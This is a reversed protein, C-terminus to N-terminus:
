ATTAARQGCSEDVSDGAPAGRRLSVWRSDRIENIPRDAKSAARTWNRGLPWNIDQPDNAFEREDARLQGDEEIGPQTYVVLSFM